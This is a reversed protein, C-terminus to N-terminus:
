EWGYPTKKLGLDKNAQYRERANRNARRRSSERRITKAETSHPDLRKLNSEHARIEGFTKYGLRIIDQETLAASVSGDEYIRYRNEGITVRCSTCRIPPKNSAKPNM